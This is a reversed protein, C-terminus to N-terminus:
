IRRKLKPFHVYSSFYELYWKLIQGMGVKPYSKETACMGEESRALDLDPWVNDNLGMNKQM